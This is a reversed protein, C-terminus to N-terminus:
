FHSIAAPALVLDYGTGFNAIRGFPAENFVELWLDHSVGLASCTRGVIQSDIAEGFRSLALFVKRHEADIRNWADEFLFRGLENGLLRLVLAEADAISKGPLSTQRVFVDLLLPRGSTKRVIRRLGALGAMRVPTSDYADALRQLLRVGTGEDMEPVRISRAEVAERRRSTMLVRGLKASMKEIVAVIGPEEAAVRALTETNDLVLLIQDRKLGVEGFL